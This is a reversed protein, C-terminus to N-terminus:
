PARRSDLVEGVVRVLEDAETGKDLFRDVPVWRLDAPTLTLGIRRVMASVMVIPIAAQRAENRITRALEAGDMGPLLLDTVLADFTDAHLQELAAEATAVAVVAHGEEKLRSAYSERVDADDEVLLIRAM